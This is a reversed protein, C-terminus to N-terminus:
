WTKPAVPNDPTVRATARPPQPHEGHLAEDTKVRRRSSYANRSSFGTGRPYTLRKSLPYSVRPRPSLIEGDSYDLSTGSASPDKDPSAQSRTTLRLQRQGLPQLIPQWTTSGPTGRHHLVHCNAHAARCSHRQLLRNSSAAM